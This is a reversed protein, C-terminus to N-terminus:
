AYVDNVTTSPIQVVSQWMVSGNTGDLKYLYGDPARVYLVPSGNGDAQVNASSTIGIQGCTLTPRYGMFRSWRESGDSENIAYLCGSLGGIYVVGRFTVPTAFFGTSSGGGACGRDPVRWRAVLHAVASATLRGGDNMSSGHSPSGLRMPWDNWNCGTLALATGLAVGVITAVRRKM